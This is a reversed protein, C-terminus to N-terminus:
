RVLVKYAKQGVKVLYLGPASLQRRLPTMGHCVLRGAPTYVAVREGDAGDVSLSCGEAAIRWGDAVTQSIGASESLLVMPSHPGIKGKKYTTMAYGYGYEESPDIDVRQSVALPDQVPMYSYPIIGTEGKKLKQYVSLDDLFYYLAELNGDDAGEIAVYCSKAGGALEVTHSVWERTVPVMKSDVEQQGMPLSANYLIVKLNKARADGCVTLSVYVKGGGTSLDGTPAVIQGTARRRYWANNIGLVGDAYVPNGVFWGFRHIAEM